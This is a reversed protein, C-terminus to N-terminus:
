MSVLDQNTCMEANTTHNYRDLMSLNSHGMAVATQIPTCHKLMETAYEHRACYLVISRDVGAADRARRFTASLSAPTWPKGRPSLWIHGTTREGLGEKVWVLMRAGVAIRRPKGTKRSTKHKTHVIVMETQNWIEVTARALENPRAGSQRLANYICLFEPACHAKILETEAATALRDRQRGVPKPIDKVVAKALADHSLAYKQLQELAIINRRQTDPAKEEGNFQGHQWHNVEFLYGEIDMLTIADFDKEGFRKIFPALGGDYYRLTNDSKHGNKLCKFYGEAVVSVLM